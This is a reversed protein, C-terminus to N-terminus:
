WPRPTDYGVTPTCHRNAPVTASCNRPRPSACGPREPEPSALAIDMLLAETPSLFLVAATNTAAEPDFDDIAPLRFSDEDIEGTLHEVFETRRNVLAALDPKDANLTHSAREIAITLLWLIVAMDGTSHWFGMVHDSRSM